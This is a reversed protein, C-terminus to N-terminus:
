RTGTQEPVRKQPMHPPEHRARTSLSPLHISDMVHLKVSPEDFLNIPTSSERFTAGSPNDGGLDIGACGRGRYGSDQVALAGALGASLAGAGASGAALVPRLALVLTPIVM